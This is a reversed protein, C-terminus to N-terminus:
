KFTLPSEVARFEDGQLIYIVSLLYPPHYPVAPSELIQLKKLIQNNDM